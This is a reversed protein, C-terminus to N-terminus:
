EILVHILGKKPNSNGVHYLALKKRGEGERRELGGAVVRGDGTTPQGERGLRRPEEMQAAGGGDEWHRGRGWRRREASLRRRIGFGDAGDPGGGVDTAWRREGQGAGGWRGKPRWRRGRWPGPRCRRPPAVGRLSGVRSVAAVAECGRQETEVGGVTEAEGETYACRGEAGAREGSSGGGEDDAEAEGQRGRVRTAVGGDPKVRAAGASIAVAVLGANSAAMAVICATTAAECSRSRAADRARSCSRAVPAARVACIAVTCRRM